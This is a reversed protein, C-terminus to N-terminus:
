YRPIFPHDPLWDHEALTVRPSKFNRVETSVNLDLGLDVVGTCQELGNRLVAPSISWPHVMSRLRLKRLRTGLAAADGFSILQDWGSLEIKLSELEQCEKLLYDLVIQPTRPDSHEALIDQITTPRRYIIRLTRLGEFAKNPVQQLFKSFDSNKFSLSRTRSFDWMMSCEEKSYGRDYGSLKLKLMPPFKRGCPVLGISPNNFNGNRYTCLDIVTLVRGEVRPASGHEYATDYNTRYRSLAAQKEPNSGSLLRETKRPEVRNRIVGRAIDDEFRGLPPNSKGHM